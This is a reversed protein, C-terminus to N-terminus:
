IFLDLFENKERGCAPPDFELEEESGEAGRATGTLEDHLM